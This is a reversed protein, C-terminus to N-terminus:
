GRKPGAMASDPSPQATQGTGGTLVGWGTTAMLEGATTTMPVVLSGAVGYTQAWPSALCSAWPTSNVWTPSPCM